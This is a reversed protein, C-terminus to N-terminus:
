EAKVKTAGVNSPFGALALIINAKFVAGGDGALVAAGAIATKIKGLEAEVLTKLSVFDSAAASGMRIDPGELVMATASRGSAGIPVAPPQGGPYAYADSVNFRRLDSATIDDNGTSKWEAISHDSFHLTVFDGRELPFTLGFGGKSHPFLVPVTVVTPGPVSKIEGTTADKFRGRIILRASVTQTAPDYSEVIGPCVTHMRATGDNVARRLLDPLTPAGGGM